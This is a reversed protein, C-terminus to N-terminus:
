IRVISVCFRTNNYLFPAKKINNEIYIEDFGVFIFNTYPKYLLEYYPVNIIM